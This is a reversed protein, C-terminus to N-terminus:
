QVYSSFKHKMYKLAEKNSLLSYLLLLTLPTSITLHNTYLHSLHSSLLHTLLSSGLLALLTALPGKGLSTTASQHGLVRYEIYRHAICDTM